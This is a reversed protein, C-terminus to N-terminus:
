EDGLIYKHIAIGVGDDVNTGTVAKAKAQVHKRANGMAIGLGAYQLMAVDNEEDGFAMIEERNIHLHHALKALANGKSGQLHAFELLTNASKVITYQDFYSKPIRAQFDNLKQDDDLILVKYVEEPGYYKTMPMYIAAAILDHDSKTIREIHESLIIKNECFVHMKFGFPEVLEAIRRVDDSHITKKFIIEYPNTKTAIVGNYSIIYGNAYHLLDLESILGLIDEYTRGSAIVINIKLAKLAEIAALNVPSIKKQQNFLTGDLDMAVLKYM